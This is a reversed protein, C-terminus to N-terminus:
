GLKEGGLRRACLCPLARASDRLEEAYSSGLLHCRGRSIHRGPASVLDLRHCDLTRREGYSVALLVLLM